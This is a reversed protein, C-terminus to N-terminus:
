LKSSLTGCVNEGFPGRSAADDKSTRNASGVNDEHLKPRIRTRVDSWSRRRAKEKWERRRRGSGERSWKRPDSVLFKQSCTARLGDKQIPPTGQNHNTLPLFSSLYPEPSSNSGALTAFILGPHFKQFFLYFPNPTNSWFKRLKTMYFLFCYTSIKDPIVPLQFITKKFYHIHEQHVKLYM